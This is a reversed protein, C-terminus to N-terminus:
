EQQLAVVPAIAAARLVPVLTALLAVAGLVTLGGLYTGVDWPSIEFLLAQLSRAVAVAGALGLVLGAGVWRMGQGVVLRVVDGTRAGVARRVAIERTRQGVLYGLVSFIGVAALLVALAAFMGMVRTRFRPHALEEAFLAEMTEFRVPVSSDAERLLARLTSSLSAQDLSTRALISLSNGWDQTSPVFVMPPPAHTPDQWRTDGVVGVIEMWPARTSTRIRQGLPSAGSFVARALAENVIAVPTRSLSPQGPQLADRDDFDRGARIPIELTTFYDPTIAYLEVQPREGPRGEPRGEVFMDRPARPEWGMPLYAAGAAASVGPVARLRELLEAYFRSRTRLSEVDEGVAYETFAILVRETRFGLDVRQLAQFSRLLLGSAALLVVSMAVEVVVLAARSRAGTGTTATRSGGNAMARSLDLRSAHIAPVVGFVLATLFSLGLGFLLVTANMRVDDIRPLDAPSLAVLGQVLISAMLLGALGSVGALVCSETLLQRAVRGRGAGLAARLGIERARDAGRALLMSSINACAILLVVTVAGMLVWLMPQVDGTLRDRLPVVAVTKVRNEPHARSLADGITRLQSRAAELGVDSALKGVARYTQHGRDPHTVRSPAWVDTAGPYRFEPAAVGVIQLPTGYAVIVEGVAAEASGFHTRAWAHAVVAVTPEGAPMDRDTLLRGAAATQGFVAFFDASVYRTNAFVAQGGVITVDDDGLNDGGNYAAMSEFADSQAQWDLFDPGSVDQSSRGTETWLTEISVIRDADPYPLPRLLVGDVVSFVAVSAGIGLALTAVATVTFGPRRALSRIAHRVDLRLDDWGVGRSARPRRLERAWEAAATALVDVLAVFCIWLRATPGRAARLRDWLVGELDAGFERRFHPPLLLLLMRYLRIAPPSM